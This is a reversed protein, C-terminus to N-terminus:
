QYEITVTAIYATSAAVTGTASYAQFAASTLSTSDTRCKFWLMVSSSGEFDARASLLTVAGTPVTRTFEGNSDTTGSTRTVFREVKLASNYGAGALPTGSYQYGVGPPAVLALVPREDTINATVISAASAAVAVQALVVTSAPASPVAPSAAPTGTIVLLVPTNTSGAYQADQVVACILDIRPNTPDATSIALNVTGDNYAYYAGQSTLSAPLGYTTQATTNTTLGSTSGLTGPIWVQGAAVNVSMNPTGNATCTLGGPVVGAGSILSQSARRFLEASHSDASIVYAPSQLAM